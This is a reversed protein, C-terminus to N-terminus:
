FDGGSSFVESGGVFTALPRISRIQDEPVSLLDRDLIVFDALKGAEISGKVKEEYTIYANNVTAVRLAEERTIKEAVGSLNGHSTRRTVYFYFNVFPNNTFTPWDSGTGVTLHHDLFERMPVARETREKGLSHIMGEAGGYPQVNAIIMIGLRAMKEMQDPHALPIHEVIWRSKLISSEKDAAEYGDLVLDLARDGNIHIAPRWGYRNMVLVADRFDDPSIRPAGVNNGPLDIYPERLYATHAPVNVDALFEGVADLRLVHDGFASGVGWPKLIDEIKAADESPVDLGM